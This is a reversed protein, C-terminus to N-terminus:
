ILKKMLGPHVLENIEESYIIALNKKVLVQEAAPFVVL